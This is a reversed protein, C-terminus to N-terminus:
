CGGPKSVPVWGGRRGRQYVRRITWSEAVAVTASIMPILMPELAWLMVAVAALDGIFGAALAGAFGFALVGGGALVGAGDPDAGALGLAVGLAAALRGVM